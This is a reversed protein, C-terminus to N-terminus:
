WRTLLSVHRGVRLDSLFLSLASLSFAAKKIGCLREERFSSELRCGEVECRETRRRARTRGGDAGRDVPGQAYKRRKVSREGRDASDPGAQGWKWSGWASTPKSSSDSPGEEESEEQLDEDNEEARRRSCTLGM